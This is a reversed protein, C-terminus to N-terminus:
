QDIDFIVILGTSKSGSNSLLTPRVYRIHRTYLVAGTSEVDIRDIDSSKFSM